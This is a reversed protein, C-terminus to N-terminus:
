RVGGPWPLGLKSLAAIDVKAYIRTTDHDQHRLVQGIESLSAGARLLHTALSHRFIHTGKRRVDLGARTLALAAIMSIGSSSAFGVHPALSRVFVRRNDTHPRGHELYDALATGVESLLPLSAHRRGKGRVTLHGSCWDIDDLMLTAIENARLGLRALLLLVAYDRRGISSHRDCRELVQQVQDPSLHEPLGAFRWTRVSPVATTLDVDIYGRYLLYRTFTRLTWCMCQASRPSQDHAHRVVFDTIDVGTLRSLSTSGEACHERLFKRLPPRHRIVTVRMLGREQSLYREFDQEIQELPGPVKATLPAIAEIERLLELLRYLAPRDSVFPHRYRVRYRQYQEVSCEDVANIDLRKHALWCSFDGVVRICRAGSQYCHGESLLRAAYVDIYVGLPGERLRRLVKSCKFYATTTM